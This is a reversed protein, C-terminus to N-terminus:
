AEHHFAGAKGAPTADHVAHEAPIAEHVAHEAPTDDTVARKGPPEHLVAHWAPTAHCVAHEGPSDGSKDSQCTLDSHHLVGHGGRCSCIQCCMRHHKEILVLVHADADQVAGAARQLHLRALSLCCHKGAHCPTM